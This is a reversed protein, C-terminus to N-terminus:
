VDWALAALKAAVEGDQAVGGIGVAGMLQRQANLLPGGGPLATFKEDQFYGINLNNKQLRDLFAATSTGMRAATYAKCPTLNITLLKAGDEKHYLVLFGDKDCVAVSFPKDGYSEAVLQKAKAAIKEALALTINDM